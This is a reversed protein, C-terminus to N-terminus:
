DDNELLFQMLDQDDIDDFISCDVYILYNNVPSRGFCRAKRSKPPPSAQEKYPSGSYISYFVISEKEGPQSMLRRYFRAPGVESVQNPATTLIFSKQTDSWTLHSNPGLDVTTLKLFRGETYTFEQSLEDDICSTFTLPEDSNM